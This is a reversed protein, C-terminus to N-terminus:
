RPPASIIEPSGLPLLEIGEGEAASKIRFRIALTEAGFPGFKNKIKQRVGVSFISGDELLCANPYYQRPDFTFGRDPAPKVWTTGHDRSYIVQGNGGPGGCFVLVTLGAPGQFLKGRKMLRTKADGSGDLLRRPHSWTLGYDSSQIWDSFPRSAMALSGDSLYGVNKEDGPGPQKFVSTTRWTEGNNRSKLLALVHGDQEPWGKGVPLPSGSALAVLGGDRPDEMLGQVAVSFLFPGTLKAIVRWTEGNDDSRHVVFPQPFRDTAIKSFELPDTPLGTSLDTRIWGRHEEVNHAAFLTGDNLQILCEVGEAGRVHPFPRPRSWTEGNDRSRIWFNRAGDPAKNKEHWEKLVPNALTMKELYDPPFDLPTPWSAHWYGAQFSVLLDGNQLRLVKPWGCFGGFGPFFEPTNVTPSVLVKRFENFNQAPEAPLSQAFTGILTVAIWGTVLKFPRRTSTKM